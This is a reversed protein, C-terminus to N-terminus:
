RWLTFRDRWLSTPRDVRFEVRKLPSQLTYISYAFPKQFYVGRVLRRLRHHFAILPTMQQEWVSASRFIRERERLANAALNMNSGTETFASTMKRMSQMNLKKRIAGLVWDADGLDRYNDNFFLGHKEVVQRRFFMGCSFPSLHCIRTHAALPRLVHRSCIYGGDSNTVVFGCFLIDVSPNSEFYQLVTLLAGPLYQEDCNLYSIIDGRSKRIGKNIADYMGRDPEIYALVHPHKLLVASTEDDSNADQVIHEIAVQKQDAVSAICLPLWKAGRYSPTIVSLTKM